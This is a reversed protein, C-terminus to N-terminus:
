LSGPATVADASHILAEENDWEYANREPHFQTAYFPYRKSEMSSVFAKGERDLNVSLVDWTTRMREHQNYSVPSLGLEHLNQAIPQTRFIEVIRKDMSGFLRSHQAVPTFSLALTMNEAEFHSLIHEDGSAMIAMQEFGQCTGWLPFYNGADNERTAWDYIFQSVNQYYSGPLFLEGGPFVVGNISQLLSILDNRPLDYQIAVVRAGASELWKVYGAALYTRGLGKYQPDAYTPQAMVGVIPRANRVKQAVSGGVSVLLVALGLFVIVGWGPLRLM